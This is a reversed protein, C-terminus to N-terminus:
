SLVKKFKQLWHVSVTTLYPYSKLLVLAIPNSPGIPGISSLLTLFRCVTNLERLPFESQTFAAFLWEGGFTIKLLCCECKTFHSWEDAPM